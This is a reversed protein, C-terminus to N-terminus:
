SLVFPTAPLAELQTALADFSRLDAKQIRPLARQIEAVEAPEDEGTWALLMPVDPHARASDMALNHLAGSADRAVLTPDYIMIDAGESHPCYGV